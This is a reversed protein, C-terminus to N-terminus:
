SPQKPPMRAATEQSFLCMWKGARQAWISSVYAQAAFEHGHSVGKEHIKYSILGSEASLPVFRVDEMSYDTLTFGAVNKMVDAKTALGAADVFVAEEATLNAFIEVNGSKLSDLGEREKAVIQQQLSSATAQSNGRAEFARTTFALSKFQGALVSGFITIVAVAQLVSSKEM